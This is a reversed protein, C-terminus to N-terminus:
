AAVGSSAVRRMSLGLVTAVGFVWNERDVIGSRM